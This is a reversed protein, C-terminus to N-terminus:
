ARPRSAFGGLAFLLMTLVLLVGASLALSWHIGLLSGGLGVTVGSFTRMGLGSMAYLGIVRGRIEAPARVQVLTQAMANFSLELFGAV